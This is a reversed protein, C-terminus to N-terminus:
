NAGVKEAIRDVTREIRLLIAHDAAASIEQQTVRQVLADLESAEAKGGLQLMLWVIVAAVTSLGATVASWTIVKNM